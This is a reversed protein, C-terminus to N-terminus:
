RIAFEQNEVSILLEGCAPELKVAILELEEAGALAAQPDLGETRPV